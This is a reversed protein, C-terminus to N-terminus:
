TFFFKLIFALVTIIGFAVSVVVVLNRITERVINNGKRYLRIYFFLFGIPILSAFFVGLIANKVNLHLMLLMGYGSVMTPYLIYKRMEQSSQKIGFYFIPILILMFFIFIM